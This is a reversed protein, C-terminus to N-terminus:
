RKMLQDYILEYTGPGIGAEGLYPGDWVFAMYLVTALLVALLAHLFSQLRTSPVESFAAAFMCLFAGFILVAWMSSPLRELNADVRLRRAVAMENFQQLTETHTIKQGETAPEFAFLVQQIHTVLAVGQTPVIGRKQQPWAVHIIQEVYARIGDRIATRTPEPYGEADRYLASIAASERSVIKYVESHTEYVNVVILAAVLGYFVMMSQIMMSNFQPEHDGVGFVSKRWRRVLLLLVHSVAVFGGVMVVFVIWLPWQYLFAPM